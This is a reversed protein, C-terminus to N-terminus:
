SPRFPPFWARRISTVLVFGVLRDLICGAALVPFRLRVCRCSRESSSVDVPAEQHFGLRTPMCLPEAALSICSGLGVGHLSAHPDVHRRDTGLGSWTSPFPHKTWWSARGLRTGICAVPVRRHVTRGLFTSLSRSSGRVCRYRRCPRGAQDIGRTRPSPNPQNAATSRRKRYVVAEFRGRRDDLPHPISCAVIRRHSTRRTPRTGEHIWGNGRGRVLPPNRLIFGTDLTEHSKRDCTEIAQRVVRARSAHRSAPEIGERGRVCAQERGFPREMANSVHKATKGVRSPNPGTPDEDQPERGGEGEREREKQVTSLYPFRAEGAWKGVTNRLCTVFPTRNERPPDRHGPVRARDAGVRVTEPREDGENRPPERQLTGAVGSGNGILRSVFPSSGLLPSDLAHLEVERVLVRCAQAQRRSTRRRPRPFRRRPFGSPFVSSFPHEFPCSRFASVASPTSLTSPFPAEEVISFLVFPECAVVERFLPTALHV